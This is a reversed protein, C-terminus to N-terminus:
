PGYGRGQKADSVSESTSAPAARARPVYHRQASGDLGAVSTLTKNVTLVGESVMCCVRIRPKSEIHVGRVMVDYSTTPTTSADDSM